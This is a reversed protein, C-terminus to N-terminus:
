KRRRRIFAIAGLGLAAMTGPEPVPTSTVTIDDTGVWEDSGSADSTMIRFELVSQNSWAALSATVPTVLTADTNTADAVFASPVNIWNGTTALRYQLAVRQIANDVTNEIDRVNYSITVNTRGVSNMFLKLHPARATTSGTLAVVPNILEFETLGGTTFSNPSIQNANVDVVDTGNAVITQPDVGSGSALGDGRYGMISNVGSWDDNATILSINSWNQSFDGSSLLHVNTNAFALSSISVAFAAVLGKKLKISGKGERIPDSAFL